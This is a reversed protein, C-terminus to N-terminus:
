AWPSMPDNFNVNPVALQKKPIKIAADIATKYDFLHIDSYALLNERGKLLKMLFYQQLVIDFELWIDIIPVRENSIQQEVQGELVYFTYLNTDAIQYKRRSTFHCLTSRYKMYENLTYTGSARIGTGSRGVSPITNTDRENIDLSYANLPLAETTPIYYVHVPRWLYLSTNNFIEQNIYWNLIYKFISYTFAKHPQSLELFKAPATLPSCLFKWDPTPSEKYQLNGLDRSHRLGCLDIYVSAIDENFNYTPGAISARHQITTVQNFDLISIPITKNKSNFVWEIDRPMYGAQLIHFFSDFMGKLISHAPSNQEITCYIDAIISTGILSPLTIHPAFREDTDMSGAFFFPPYKELRLAPASPKRFRALISRNNDIYGPIREMSYLCTTAQDKNSDSIPLLKNKHLKAYTFKYPKVISIGQVNLRANLTNYIAVHMIFEHEWKHCKTPEIPEKLVRHINTPSIFIQGYSGHHLSELQKYNINSNNNM